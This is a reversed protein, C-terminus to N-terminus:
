GCCLGGCVLVFLHFYCFNISITWTNFCVCLQAVTNKNWLYCKKESTYLQLVHYKTLPWRSSLVESLLFYVCVSQNCCLIIGINQLMLTVLNISVPFIDSKDVISVITNFSRLSFLDYIFVPMPFSFLIEHIYITSNTTIIAQSVTM